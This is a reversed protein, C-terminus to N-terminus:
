KSKKQKEDSVELVKMGSELKRDSGIIIKAGSSLGKEFSVWGDKMDGIELEVPVAYIGDEREELVFVSNGHLATVPIAKMRSTTNFQMGDDTTVSAPFPKETV